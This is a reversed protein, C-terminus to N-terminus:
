IIYDENYIIVNGNWKSFIDKNIDFYFQDIIIVEMNSLIDIMVDPINIYDKTDDDLITTDLLIKNNRKFFSIIGTYYRETNIVYYKINTTKFYSNYFRVNEMDVIYRNTKHYFDTILDMASISPRDLKLRILHIKSKPSSLSVLDEDTISIIDKGPITFKM